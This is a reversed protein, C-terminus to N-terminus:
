AIGELGSPAIKPSDAARKNPALVGVGRCDLVDNAFGLVFKDNLDDWSDYTWTGAAPPTPNLFGYM